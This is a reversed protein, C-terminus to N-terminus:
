KIYKKHLNFKIKKLFKYLNAKNIIFLDIFIINIFLFFFFNNINFLIPIKKYM